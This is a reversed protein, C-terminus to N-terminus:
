DKIYFEAVKIASEVKTYDLNKLEENLEKGLYESLGTNNKEANGANFQFGKKQDKRLIGYKNEVVDRVVVTKDNESIIEYYLSTDFSLSSLAGDVLELGKNKMKAGLYCTETQDENIVCFRIRKKSAFSKYKEKGKENIYKLGVGNGYTHGVEVMGPGDFPDSPDNPKKIEEFAIGIKGEWKKDDEDIIYGKKDYINLSNRKRTEYDDKDKEYQIAQEEKKEQYAIKKGENIQNGLVYGKAVINEVLETLFYQNSIGGNLQTRNKYDFVSSNILSVTVPSLIDTTATAILNNDLDYIKIPTTRTDHYKDPANVTGIVETGMRGGSVITTLDNKVFPEIKSVRDDAEKQKAKGKNAKAKAKSETTTNFFETIKNQNVTGEITFFQYKNMLHNVIGKKGGGFKRDLDVSNTKEKSPDSIELWTEKVGNPSMMKGIHEVIVFVNSTSVDSFTLIHHFDGIIGGKTTIYESEVKIPIEVKDILIVGKKIKIKQASASFVFTLIGLLILIKSTNM